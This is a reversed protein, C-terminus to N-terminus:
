EVKNKSTKDGKLDKFWDGDDDRSDFERKHQLTSLLMSIMAMKEHDQEINMTQEIREKVQHLPHVKKLLEFANM